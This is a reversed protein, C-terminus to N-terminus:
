IRGKLHYVYALIEAVAQYLEPPVSEGIEVNAYLTRALPKNEVIEIEHERATEKIKQALFDAGKAVVFPADTVNQDYKLAVAYHTPNTIVVDAEPLAQMMRRRSAEQMRRRQQGKIQPDGETNKYEDKVEQKTMKVDEKFRYKEWVYDAAAIIIYFAAIRLGVDVVIRSILSIAGMLPLDYLLLIENIRDKLYSYVVYSILAIKMFSKVVEMLTQPSFLRSFGNLPNLKSFKPELPKTTIKWKVQLLNVVFVVAFSALMLPVLMKLIEVVSTAFLADLTNLPIFGDPNATVAPFKGYVYRMLNLFGTGFGAYMIRLMVFLTLLTAANGIEKSKAVKGEKRTDELKKATPEETKEGGAGEKAFLQLEYKLM